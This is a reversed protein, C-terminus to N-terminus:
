KQLVWSSGHLTASRLFVQCQSPYRQTWAIIASSIDTESELLHISKQWSIKSSSRPERGYESSYKTRQLGWQVAQRLKRASNGTCGLVIPLIGWVQTPTLQSVAPDVHHYASGTPGHQPEANFLTGIPSLLRSVGHSNSFVLMKCWGGYWFLFIIQSPVGIEFGFLGIISWIEEQRMSCLQRSGDALQSRKCPIVSEEM